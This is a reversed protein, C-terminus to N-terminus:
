SASVGSTLERGLRALIASPGGLTTSLQKGWLFHRHVPYDTDVGIGGHVHQVRHVVTLGGESAWWAAVLAATEGPVDSGQESLASVAQWLTVRLADVDIYCDALQHAVAQFTGLPRGFQERESVYAAAQTLAGEAVGLTLAACCVAARALVWELVGTGPEGVAEGLVGDLELHASRDHTTTEAATWTLGDAAPDVLFVGTGRETTASVLVARAGAPTPVVAKSGTLRWQDGDAKAACSPRTPDHEVFGELALTLRLEGSAAGALLDSRMTATGHEALTLAALAASWVPVPAVRRGQEELLVTLGALGQGAGGHEEPLAIGLLGATGLAAWLDEDVRGESREVARVRETTALDTLIERALDQVSQLDEDLGFDM